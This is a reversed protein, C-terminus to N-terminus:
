SFYGCCMRVYTRYIYKCIYMSVMLSEYYEERIYEYDEKTEEIFLARLKQDLLSSVKTLFSLNYGQVYMRIYM